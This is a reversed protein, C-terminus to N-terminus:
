SSAEFRPATVASAAPAEEHQRAEDDLRALRMRAALMATYVLTFAGLNILLAAVMSGAMTIGGSRITMGQHLTRWLDVSFYVLPVQVVAVVGVIASRRARVEPDPLSRRLALYGLYVFFMLATSTMRADRWEWYTGWVPKGWIMGTFLAVGTFLVGIEASSAALRDWVPSRRILWVISGLATVGFAVFALWANSVHVYLIRVFDGMFADPPSAFAAWLGAVVAAATLAVFLRRM